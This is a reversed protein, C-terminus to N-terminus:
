SRADIAEKRERSKKRKSSTRGEKSTRSRDRSTKRKKAKGDKRSVLAKRGGEQRTTKTEEEDATDIDMDDEDRDLVSRRAVSDASSQRSRNQEHLTRSSNRRQTIVQSNPPSLISEASARRRRLISDRDSNSRISDVSRNRRLGERTGPRHPSTADERQWRSM